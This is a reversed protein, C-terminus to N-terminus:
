QRRLVFKIGSVKSHVSIGMEITLTAPCRGSTPTEETYVKPGWILKTTVIYSFFISFTIIFM